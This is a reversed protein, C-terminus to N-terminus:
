SSYVIVYSSINKKFHEVALRIIVDRRRFMYSYQYKM